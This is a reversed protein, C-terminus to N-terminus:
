IKPVNMGNAGLIKIAAMEGSWYAGTSTGLGIFPAVHEGALWIGREPIGARMTRVEDDLVIPKGTESVKFNTYSGNGALDDNQWNTAIVASPTCEPKSPDYNPLRSYYPRTFENVATFYEESGPYLHNITTTLQHGSDGFLSFILTPHAHKGFKEPNSLTNVELAFSNNCKLPAYTPNLFNVFGPFNDDSELENNPPQENTINCDTPKVDWYANPFTVFIKELSSISANEIALNISLPLPPSFKIANRKLCGLPITIVVEDFREVTVNGDNEAIVQITPDSNPGSVDNIEIVEEELKINTHL